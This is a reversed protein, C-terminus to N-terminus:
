AANDLAKPKLADDLPTEAMHNVFNSLTKMSIAVVTELVHQHTYGADLFAQIDGDDVWGQKKVVTQAFTALANLKPDPVPKNHRLAELVQPDINAGEAGGTHAAVCYGCGNHASIALLLTEQEQASFSTKNRVVDNLSLYAQTAAPSDAFVKFINPVFGFGKEVQALLPQSQEPAESKEHMPFGRETKTM